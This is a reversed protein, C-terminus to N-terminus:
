LSIEGFEARDRHIRQGTSTQTETQRLLYILVPALVLRIIEKCTPFITHHHDRSLVALPVIHRTVVVQGVDALLACTLWQRLM